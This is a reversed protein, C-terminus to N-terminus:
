PSLVKQYAALTLRATKDWSYTAAKSKGAKIMQARDKSSFNLLLNIKDVIQGLNQPNFYLAASGYAEPMAARKAALVPTGAAMAELGPLGFGELRSATIFGLSHQYLTKLQRDTVFRLVRVQKQAKLRFIIKKLRKLFVGRGTVILLHTKVGKQNVLKVAKILQILNKHPYANGVFILYPKKVQYKLKEQSQNLYIKDPAEPTVLIKRAPIPYFNLIDKKTWKSPTLILSSNKVARRFIRHYGLRKIFYILPFRTTTKLGISHHKILDHITVVFKGSFFLPANFHLFHTLDPKISRALLSIQWHESLSYPAASSAVINFQKFQRKLRGVLGPRTLLFFKFGKPKLQYLATVLSRSYRGLGTHKPGWFRADILIKKM